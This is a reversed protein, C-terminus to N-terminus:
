ITIFRLADKDAVKILFEYIYQSYDNAKKFLRSQFQDDKLKEIIDKQSVEDLLDLYKDALNQYGEYNNEVACRELRELPPLKTLEFIDKETLAKEMKCSLPIVMSYCTTLRSFKLKLNKLHHKSKEEPSKFPNLRKNEYNLCMTKWFRIIDNILFIPRFNDQHDEFDVYYKKISEKIIKEHLHSNYISISELILLMRTTFYNCHDDKPSGLNSLIENLSHIKLYEGDNSFDPFSLEKIIKILDAFLLFQDVKSPSRPPENLDFNIFFLDLDSGDHAEKRGYSGCVFICCEDFAGINEILKIKSGIGNIQGESFKKREELTPM